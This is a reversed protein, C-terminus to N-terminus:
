KKLNFKQNFDSDFASDLGANFEANFETNLSFNKNANFKHSFKPNLKSNLKMNQTTNNLKFSNEELWHKDLEFDSYQFDAKKLATKESFISQVAFVPQVLFIGIMVGSLLIGLIVGLGVGSVMKPVHFLPKLGNPRRDM